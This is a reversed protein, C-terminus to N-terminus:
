SNSLIDNIFNLAIANGDYRKSLHALRAVRELYKTDVLVQKISKLLENPKFKASELEIGLGLDKSVRESVLMQDSDLSQALCIMPVGFHIAESVSNQGCHTIFLSARKLINIQPASRVFYVNAPRKYLHKDIKDQIGDYAKGLSIIFHFESDFKGLFQKQVNILDITDLIKEFISSSTNFITGFSTYIL